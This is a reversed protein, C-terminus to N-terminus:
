VPPARLAFIRMSRTWCHPHVLDTWVTETPRLDHLLLTSTHHEHSGSVFLDRRPVLSRGVITSAIILTTFEPILTPDDGGRIADFHLFAVVVCLAIGSQRTLHFRLFRVDAVKLLFFAISAALLLCSGINPWTLGTTAVKNWCSLMAPMHAAAMLGWFAKAGHELTVRKISGLMGATGPAAPTTQRSM